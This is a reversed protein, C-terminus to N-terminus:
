TLAIQALDSWQAGIGAFSVWACPLESTMVPRIQAFILQGWPPHPRGVGFKEQRAIDLEASEKFEACVSRLGRACSILRSPRGFKSRGSQLLARLQRPPPNLRSGVTHLTARKTQAKDMEVGLVHPRTPNPKHARPREKDILVRLTRSKGAALKVYIEGREDKTAGLLTGFSTIDERGAM